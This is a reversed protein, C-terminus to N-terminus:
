ACLKFRLNFLDAVVVVVIFCCCKNQVAPLSKWIRDNHLYKFAKREVVSKINGHQLFM